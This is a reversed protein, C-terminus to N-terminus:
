PHGRRGHAPGGAGPGGPRVPGIGPTRTPTFVRSAPVGAPPPLLRTGAHGPVIIKCPRRVRTHPASGIRRPVSPERNKVEKGNYTARGAPAHKCRRARYPRKRSGQQQDKKLQKRKQPQNAGVVVRTHMNELRLFGRTKILICAHTPRTYPPDPCPVGRACLAAACNEKARCAM